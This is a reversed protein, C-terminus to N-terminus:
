VIGPLIAFTVSTVDDNPILLTVNLWSPDTHVSFWRQIGGSDGYIM